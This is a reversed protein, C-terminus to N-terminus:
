FRGGRGDVLIGLYIRFILLLVNIKIEEFFCWIKKQQKQMSDVWLEEISGASNSLFWKLNIKALINKNIIQRRVVFVLWM